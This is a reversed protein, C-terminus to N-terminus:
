VSGRIRGRKPKVRLGIVDIRIDVGADASGYFLRTQAEVIQNDDHYVVGGQLADAVAKECNDFDRRRYDSFRFETTLRLEANRDQLLAVDAVSLGGKDVSISLRASIHELAAYVVQEQWAAQKPDTYRHKGNSRARKWSVPDGEVRFAVMPLKIEPRM